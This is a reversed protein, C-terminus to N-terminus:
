ICFGPIVCTPKDPKDAQAAFMFVDGNTGVRNLYLTSEENTKDPSVTREWWCRPKGKWRRVLAENSSYPSADQERFVQYEHGETNYVDSLWRFDASFSKSPQDGALEVMAPLWLSSSVASVCSADTAAGTNNSRKDVPKICLRLDDPLLDIAETDLWSRLDCARWGFAVPESSANRQAIGADFLFSLGAKGTGDTLDDHLLGVLQAGVTLGNSLTVQKTGPYPIHGSADLLHYKQAIKCAAAESPAGKLKFSIEQLQEWSYDDLKGRIGDLYDPIGFGNTAVGAVSLAAVAALMGGAIFKRRTLTKRREAEIQSRAREAAVDVKLHTGADIDIPADEGADDRVGVASADNGAAPAYGALADLMQQQSPRDGQEVSLGRMIIDVLARDEERRTELPAPDTQTKILYFSGMAATGGGEIDFPKRGSYLEYLISAIAYVDVAPSRRLAAIGMIDQTLMEPAAYAPTAFRWIDARKTLTDSGLAATASGMDVLCPDFTRATVQEELTRDVTRFMINAPSLDRHVIPNVLSQTRLLTRLVASGVAAVIDTAVGGAAEHPLLPLAKALSVGEVWEMLILPDDECSGYGYVRPFGRLHSVTCLYRYEEFLSATAALHLASREASRAPTDADALIANDALLKVAFVEGSTNTARLVHGINGASMRDTQLILTMFRRKAADEATPDIATATDFTDLRILKNCGRSDIADM